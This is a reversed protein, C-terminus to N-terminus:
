IVVLSLTSAESLVNWLDETEANAYKFRSLYKKLGMKLASKGLFSELM